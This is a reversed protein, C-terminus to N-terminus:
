RGPGLYRVALVLADDKGTSHEALLRDAIRQPEEGRDVGDSFDSRIGDTAFVLTDGAHLPLVSMRLPPMQYGVIGGRPLLGESYRSGDQSARLLMGQINGVGLWTLTDHAVNFSAASMVVGRTGLLAQHCRRLLADLPEHCFGKLAETCARAASAAEPGHGLADVVAALVANPAAEVVERDGSEAEGPLAAGAVGWSVASLARKSTQVM